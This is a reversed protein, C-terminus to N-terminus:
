MNNKLVNGQKNVINLFSIFGIIFLAIASFIFAKQLGIVDANFSFILIIIASSFSEILSKISLITTRNSSQINQNIEDSITIRLIWFGINMIIIGLLIFYGKAMGMILLGIITLLLNIFILSSFSLIKDFRHAIEASLGQVLRLITYFIGFYIINLTSIQLLPQAYEALIRFFGTIITFFIIISFLYKANMLELISEKFHTHFSFLKTEAQEKKESPIEIMLHAIKISILFFLSTIIFPIKEGLQYVFPVIAITIANLTQIYLRIRGSYKKFQNSKKMTLLTEYLIAERTGSVFATSIGYFVGGMLYPYFSNGFVLFLSYILAFFSGIMLSKKKGYKDAFIGCPIEMTIAIISATAAITGIHSFDLYHALYYIAIIPFAFRKLLFGYLFLLKINKEIKM